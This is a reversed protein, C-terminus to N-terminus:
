ERDIELQNNVRTAGAHQRAVSAIRAKEHESAVPGRLTVLGDITIVKVNRGNLSLGETDMLAKRIRQTLTRDVETESQDQATLAGENKNRATNDADVAGATGAEDIVAEGEVEVEDDAAMGEGYPDAEAMANPRAAFETGRARADPKIRADTDDSLALDAEASPADMEVREARDPGADSRSCGSVVPLAAVAAALIMTGATKM